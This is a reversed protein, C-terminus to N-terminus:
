QLEEQKLKHMKEEIEQKEFKTFSGMIVALFLNLIFYSGISIVGLFFIMSVLGNGQDILNYMQMSWGELTLAEFIAVVASFINNFNHANYSTLPDEWPNDISIDIKYDLPSGCFTGEACKM